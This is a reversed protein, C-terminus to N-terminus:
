KNLQVTPKTLKEIVEQNYDQLCVHSAGLKSAMIGLLGHGCGIEIVRKGEFLSSQTEIFQLM